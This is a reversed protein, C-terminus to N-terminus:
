NQLVPKFKSRLMMLFLRTFCRYITVKALFSFPVQTNQKWTVMQQVDIAQHKAAAAVSGLGVGEVQRLRWVVRMVVWRFDVHSNGRGTSSPPEECASMM